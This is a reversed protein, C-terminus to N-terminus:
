LLEHSLITPLDVPRDSEYATILRQMIDRDEKVIKDTNKKKTSSCKKYLDHFTPANSKKLPDNFKVHVTGTDDGCLRDKVFKTVKDHGHKKANLLSDLIASTAVDKTVANQLPTGQPLFEVSKSGHEEEKRLM